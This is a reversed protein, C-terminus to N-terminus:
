RCQTGNIRNALEVAYATLYGNSFVTPQVQDKTEVEVRVVLDELEAASLYYQLLLYLLVVLPLDDLPAGIPETTVGGSATM